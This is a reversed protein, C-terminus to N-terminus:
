FSGPCHQESATQSLREDILCQVSLTPNVHHSTSEQTHDDNGLKLYTNKGIDTHTYVSACEEQM